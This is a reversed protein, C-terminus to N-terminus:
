LVAEGKRLEQVADVAFGGAGQAGGEAQRRIEGIHIFVHPKSFVEEIFILIHDVSGGGGAKAITYGTRIRYCRNLWLALGHAAGPGSPHLARKPVYEGDAPPRAM